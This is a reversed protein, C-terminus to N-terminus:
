IKSNKGNGSSNKDNSANSNSNSSGNNNNANNNDNENQFVNPDFTQVDYSGSFPDYNTVAIGKEMNLYDVGNQDIIGNNKLYQRKARKEEVKKRKEDKSMNSYKAM